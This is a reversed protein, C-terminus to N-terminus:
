AFQANYRAPYWEERFTRMWDSLGGKHESRYCIVDEALATPKANSWGTIVMHPKAEPHDKITMHHTCHLGARMGEDLWLRTSDEPFSLWTSGHDTMIQRMSQYLEAPSLDMNHRAVMRLRDDSTMSNQFYPPNCLVFDFKGYRTVDLDQARTVHLNIRDNWPSNSFNEYAVDAIAAEPEVATIMANPFRAALMLALVGTGTGIDLIKLPQASPGILAGFVCSDTNVRQGSSAQRMSFQRFHFFDDAM